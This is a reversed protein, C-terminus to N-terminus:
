SGGMARTGTERDRLAIGQGLTLILQKSYQAIYSPLSVLLREGDSGWQKLLGVMCDRLNLVQLALTECRFVWNAPNKFLLVMDNFFATAGYGIAPGSKLGEEIYKLWRPKTISFYYKPPRKEDDFNIFPGADKHEMVQHLIELLKPNLSLDDDPNMNHHLPIGDDEQFPIHHLPPIKGKTPDDVLGLAKAFATYYLRADGKDEWLFDM